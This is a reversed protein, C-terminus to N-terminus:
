HLALFIRVKKQVQDFQIESELDEKDLEEESKEEPITVFDCITTKAKPTFTILKEENSKKFSKVFNKDFYRSITSSKDSFKYPMLKASLM